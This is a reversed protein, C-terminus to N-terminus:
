RSLRTAIWTVGLMFFFYSMVVASSVHGSGNRLSYLYVNLTEYRGGVLMNAFVFEGLLLSFILFLATMLGKRVSPLIIQICATTTSAGLLHAADMLAHMAIGNLGNALAQYLFPLAITVYTGILIWPTGVLPIPGDAYLQLLGVSSVVPPLAFHVVILLKMWRDLQPFYYFIVWTAPVILLLSAVLTAAIILLSHGFALLFRPEQWVASFWALTLGEPLITAGWHDALAYLLTALIPVGLLAILTMVITRHYLDARM